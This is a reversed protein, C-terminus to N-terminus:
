GSESPALLGFIKDHLWAISDDLITKDLANYFRDGTSQPAHGLFIGALPAYKSENRILSSSTKRFQKFSISPMAPDANRLKAVLRKFASTINDNRHTKGDTVNESWLPKGDNNILLYKTSKPYKNKNAAIEKDLLEKTETWLRYSVTPVNKYKETKKRKHTIRGAKPDYKEVTLKGIESAGFGCNLILLIYLKLRPNAANLLKEVWELSVTKPTQLPVAFTYKSGKRQLCTPYEKLVEEDCLWNILVKFDGFVDNAYKPKMEENMVKGLLFDRFGEIHGKTGIQAVKVISSWKRYVKITTMIKGYRGASIKKEVCRRYQDELFRDIHYSLHQNEPVTAGHEKAVQSTVGREYENDILGLERKKHALMRNHARIIQTLHRDIGAEVDIRVEEMMGSRHNKIKQVIYKKGDVYETKGHLGTPFLSIRRMKLAKKTDQLVEHDFNQLSIYLPNRLTDDLPPLTPKQLAQKLLTARHKLLDVKPALMSKTDPDIRMASKLAKIDSEISELEAHYELEYPRFTQVAKQRDIQEKKERFWQNAALLTDTYNTGGLDSAKIRLREGKYMKRWRKQKEDWHMLADAM